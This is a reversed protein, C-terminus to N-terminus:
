GGEVGDGDGDDNEVAHDLEVGPPDQFLSVQQM